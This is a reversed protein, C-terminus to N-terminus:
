EDSVTEALVPAIEEVIKNLILESNFYGESIKKKLCRLYREKDPGNMWLFQGRRSHSYSTFTEKM